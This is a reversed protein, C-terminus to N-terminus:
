RYGMCIIVVNDAAGAASLAWVRVILSSSTSAGDVRAQNTGGGFVSAVCTPTGNWYGAAVNLTCQGDAGGNSISSIWSGSQASLSSSTGCTGIMVFEARLGTTSGSRIISREFQELQPNPVTAWTGATTQTSSYAGLLRFPVNTRATTSYWGGYSDAAGAGGEATSTGLGITQFAFETSSVALEVTGANDIAYVYIPWTVGNTHGLTSGSSITISTASTVSRQNYVGSAVTSSRFGIKCASGASPDSGSADKLAITLANGAVSAALSCNSIEYQASPASASTAWKIGNTQTSDATLVQGDTGVAQRAVTASATAVYIDGKTTLTSRAQKADLQTQIASTVGNVYGIETATTTAPTLVGSGDTVIARSATFAALKSAAISGALGANTVQTCTLDGNAASSIVYRDAACDTPNAALATATDANGTVNGTLNGSFAGTVTGTFTPSALPAKAALLSTLSSGIDLYSLTTDTVSSAALRKNSDLTLVRSATGPTYELLGTGNPSIVLHGNTNTTSITNGDIRVNDVNMQDLYVQAGAVACVCLLIPILIRKSM